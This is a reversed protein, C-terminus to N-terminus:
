EIPVKRGYGAVDLLRSRMQDFAIDRGGRPDPLRTAHRDGRCVVPESNSSLQFRQWFHRCSQARALDTVLGRGLEAVQTVPEALLSIEEIFILHELQRALM